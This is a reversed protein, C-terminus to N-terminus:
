NQLVFRVPLTFQVRVPKTMNKGPSWKPMANVVRIAEEDCGGGIGRALQLDTISGDKEIVFTLYVVGQIGTEQAMIPYDINGLYKYLASEGGPFLPAVQSIVFIEDEVLDEPPLELPIYEKIETDIDAGADIDIFDDIIVDDNVIKIDYLQKPPPPPPPPKAKQETIPILDEILDIAMRQGLVIKRDEYSKWELASLVIVLVIIIGVQTYVFRKNELNAKATKKAEM